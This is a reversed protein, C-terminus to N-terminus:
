NVEIIKEKPENVKNFTITLIGDELKASISNQDIDASLNFSRKFSGYFNENRHINDSTNNLNKNGSLILQDKEVTIKLDDKMIGAVEAQLTIKNENEFIDIRPYSFSEREFGNGKWFNEVRFEPNFNDSPNVKFVIM